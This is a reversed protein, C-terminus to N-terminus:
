LHGGRLLIMEDHRYVVLATDTNMVDLDHGLFLLGLATPLILFFDFFRLCLGLFRSHQVDSGTKRGAERQRRPRKRLSALQRHNERYLPTRLGEKHSPVGQAADGDEEPIARHAPSHAHGFIRSTHLAQHSGLALLLHQEVAGMGEAEERRGLDVQLIRGARAPVAWEEVQGHLRTVRGASNQQRQLVTIHQDIGCGPPLTLGTIQGQFERMNRHHGELEVAKFPM